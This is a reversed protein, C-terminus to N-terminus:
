AAKKATHRYELPRAARLLKKLNRVGSRTHTWQGLRVLETEEAQQRVAVCLGYTRQWRWWGKEKATLGRQRLQSARYWELYLFTLLCLAVWSEVKAFSRFRYQHFGLTSKLEKFFLEIQWRLTYLEVVEALLRRCDNTMLIKEVRVLKGRKPKEKASFVIQVEGVSHVVRREGHVYWTRTKVKPGLRCPAIRRQAVFAGTGPTLRVPAFQSASFKQVLSRVQPRQGQPGALVREPNMPVIWTFGRRACATRICKADFATDGLVVVDAGEPVLAAAILEAALETQKRYPRKKHACYAETYYSRWCPIRLGSPTVLLGMVFCHCSKRAYKYKQYRRGKCPRRKRNGTSFTNETHRGQQGTLTQDLIFIWTGRRAAEAELMLNAVQELVWWDGSWRQRALFRVVNARHRARTRIAQAAQSASMRGLHAVFGAIFCILYGEVWLELKVAKFFRKIGPLADQMIM